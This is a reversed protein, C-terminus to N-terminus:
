NGDFFSADKLLIFHIVMRVREHQFCNPNKIRSGLKIGFLFEFLLIAIVSTSAVLNSKLLIKTVNWSLDFEKGDSFFM